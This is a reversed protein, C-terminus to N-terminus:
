REVLSIFINSRISDSDEIAFIASTTFFISFIMIHKVIEKYILFDHCHRNKEPFGL